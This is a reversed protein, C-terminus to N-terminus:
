AARAMIAPVDYTALEQKDKATLCAYPPPVGKVWSRYQAAERLMATCIDDASPVVQALDGMLLAVVDAKTAGYPITCGAENALAQLERTTCSWLDDYTWGETKLDIVTM